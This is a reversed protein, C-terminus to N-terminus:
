ALVKFSWSFDTEAASDAPWHRVAALAADARFSDALRKDLTAGENDVATACPAAVTAASAWRWQGVVDAAAGGVLVADDVLAGGGAVVVGTVGVLVVAVVGLVVWGAGGAVVGLM